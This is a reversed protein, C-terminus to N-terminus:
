FGGGATAAPKMDLRLRAPRLTWVNGMDQRPLNHPYFEAAISWSRRPEVRLKEGPSASRFARTMLGLFQAANLKVGEVTVWAPVANSPVAKRATDALKPALEAAAKRIGTVSV